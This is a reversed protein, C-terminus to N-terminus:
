LHSLNHGWGLRPLNPLISSSHRQVRSPLLKESPGHQSGCCKDAHQCERARRPRGRFTIIGALPTDGSRVVSQVFGHFVVAPVAPLRITRAVIQMFRPFAAPVFAVAPPIFVATAPVCIAIPIVVIVITVLEHLHKIRRPRSIRAGSKKPVASTRWVKLHILFIPRGGCRAGRM